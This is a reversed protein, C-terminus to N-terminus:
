ALSEALSYRSLVEANEHLQSQSAQTVTRLKFAHM